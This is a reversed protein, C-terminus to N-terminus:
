YVRFIFELIENIINDIDNLVINGSRSEFNKKEDDNWVMGFSSENEDEEFAFYLSANGKNWTSALQIVSAGDEDVHYRLKPLVGRTEKMNVYRTYEYKFARLVDTMQKRSNKTFIDTPLESFIDIEEDLQMFYVEQLFSENSLDLYSERNLIEKSSNLYYKKM